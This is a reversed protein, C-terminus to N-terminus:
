KRQADNGDKIHKLQKACDLGFFVNGLLLKKYIDLNLCFM